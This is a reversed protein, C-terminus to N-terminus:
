MHSSKTNPSLVSEAAMDAANLLKLFDLRAAYRARDLSRKAEDAATMAQLVDLNNVLGARYDKTQEQLNKDALRHSKELEVLQRADASVAQHLSRIEEDAMRRLKSLQLEAQAKQSAAEDVKSSTIGGSYIPLTAALQVDWRIDQLAGTRQLYYNGNLDVTPYHAERAIKVADGAAKFKLDAGRVDPRRDIKAVYHGVPLLSIANGTQPDALKVESSLGTLFGFMERTVAQQGKLQEMQARLSALASEVSLKEPIRSRGIRIRANIEDIRKLYAGSEENLNVLDREVSLIAFFNQAVDNFLANSAFRKAEGQATTLTKMQRLADFDRLGRFLPQTVTLKVLPQWAPSVSSPVKGPEQELYTAVGNLSPFLAGLAQRYHEEAQKILEGQDAITESRKMAAQFADALSVTRTEEAMLPATLALMM